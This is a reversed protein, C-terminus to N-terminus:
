PDPLRDGQGQRGPADPEAEAGAPGIGELGDGAPDAGGSGFGAPPGQIDGVLRGHRIKDGPDVGAEPAKIDQDIVGAQVNRSPREGFDRHIVEPPNNLHVQDPGKDNGPGDNRYHTGLAPSKNDINRRHGSKDRTDKGPRSVTRGLGAEIGQGPAQIQLQPGVADPRAHHRRALDVCRDQLGPRERRGRLGPRRHELGFIHGFDDDVDQIQRVPGGNFLDYDPRRDQPVNRCVKAPSCGASFFRSASSFPM